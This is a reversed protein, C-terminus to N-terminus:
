SQNPRGQKDPQLRVPVDLLGLSGRGQQQQHHHRQGQLKLQQAQVQQRQKAVPSGAQRQHVNRAAAAAPPLPLQQVGSSGVQSISFKRGKQQQQQQKHSAAAAAPQRRALCALASPQVQHAAAASRSGLGLMRSRQQSTSGPRISGAGGPKGLKALGLEQM